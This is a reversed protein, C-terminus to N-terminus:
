QKWKTFLNNNINMIDFIKGIIFNIQDDITNPKHYFGPMAPLIIAGEKSLKTMNELHVTRLPTERPVIILQRREKLTVDGVRTIVNDGYGNSISSLTKMSCPIIVSADFKFSGSNVIANLDNEDHVYSALSEVDSITYDTEYEIIDKAISSIILHTEANVKNLEELLRIGYIVGSAGSIGVVVKMIKGWLEFEKINEYIPGNPTLQSSKLCIKKVEMKGHYEKKLSKLTQSLKDKDYVERVRGITIHPVYDKEKKFGIKHFKKDLDEILRITTKDKDKIGTWIVRPRYVNPFAGVNVVKINYAEYNKISKNVIAIIEDLKDEDVEGFFKLTLHINESEVYKVSSSDSKDIISQTKNIRDKIYPEIEIALFTRM